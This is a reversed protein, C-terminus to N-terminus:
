RKENPNGGDEAPRISSSVVEAGLDNVLDRVFPDKEIAEAAAAQKQAMERSRAAAVSNGSANGVRVTLRFGEGFHPALESKLKDQYPKEGYMRHSEPVVLQLHNGEFSALEAHRAAMGAMGTLGLRQVFGPWDGDFSARPSPPPAPKPAEASPAAVPKAGAAPERADPPERVARPAAVPKSGAGADHAFALMRLMAM